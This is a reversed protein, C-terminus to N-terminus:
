GLKVVECLVVPPPAGKARRLEPLGYREVVATPDERFGDVHSERVLKARLVGPLEQAREDTERM